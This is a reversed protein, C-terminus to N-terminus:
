GIGNELKLSIKEVGIGSSFIEIKLFENKRQSFITKRSWRM